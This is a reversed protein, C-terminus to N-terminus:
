GPTLGNRVADDIPKANLQEDKRPEKYNNIYRTYIVSVDSESLNLFEASKKDISISDNSYMM